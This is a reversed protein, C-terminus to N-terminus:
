QVSHVTCTDRSSHVVPSSDSFSMPLYSGSVNVHIRIWEKTKTTTIPDPDLLICVFSVYGPVNFFLYVYISINTFDKLYFVSTKIKKQIPYTRLYQETLKTVSHFVM